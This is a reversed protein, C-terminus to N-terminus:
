GEDEDGEGRGSGEERFSVRVWRAVEVTRPELGYVVLLVSATAVFVVTPDADFRIAVTAFAVTLLAFLGDTTPRHSSPM